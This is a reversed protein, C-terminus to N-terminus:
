KRICVDVKRARMEVPETYCMECLMELECGRIEPMIKASERESKQVMWERIQMVDRVSLM